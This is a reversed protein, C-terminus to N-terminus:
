ATSHQAPSDAGATTTSLTLAITGLTMVALRRRRTNM